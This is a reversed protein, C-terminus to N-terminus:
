PNKYIGVTAAVGIFAAAETWLEDMVDTLEHGADYLVLRRGVGRRAFEESASPPVVSDLRGHLILAPQTMEPYDPYGAADTVFTYGLNRECGDAYHYFGLRGSLRWEDLRAGSLSEGWRAAFGFAPALLVARAVRQNEAAFLAAVYGGMSSGFITVEDGGALKRVIQLQGSITMSEFEPAIEPIELRVGAEGCRGAFYRAKTSSPSSAFGHLYIYRM